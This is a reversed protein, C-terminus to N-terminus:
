KGNSFTGEFMHSIRLNLDGHAHAFYCWPRQIENTCETTDLSETASLSPGSWVARIRLSSQAKATRMHGFVRIAIARGKWYCSFYGTITKYFIEFTTNLISQHTECSDNWIFNTKTSFWHLNIHWTLKISVIQLIPRSLDSQTRLAQDTDAYETKCRWAKWFRYPVRQAVEFSSLKSWANEKSELFTRNSM